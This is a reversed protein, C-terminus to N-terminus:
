ASYGALRAALDQCTLPVSCNGKLKAIADEASEYMATLGSLRVNRVILEAEQAFCSEPKVGQKILCCDAILESLEEIMRIAAERDTEFLCKGLNYEDGSAIAKAAAKVALLQEDDDATLYELCKGINGGCVSYAIAAKEESFGKKGLALLCSERDAPPVDIMIARSRITELVRDIAEATMIFAVHEPPEEFIKLLINQSAPLAKDIGPIIYIKLKGENPAVSADSVIPRLDDVKFNESKGSPSIWIIDPHANKEGMRCNKCIGCPVGDQRDCLLQMAIYLALTRKGVGKEGTLILSRCVRNRQVMSRVLSVAREKSYLEM